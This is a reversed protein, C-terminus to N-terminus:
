DFCKIMVHLLYVHMLFRCKFCRQRQQKEKVLKVQNFLTICKYLIQIVDELQDIHYQDYYEFLFNEVLCIKFNDQAVPCLLFDILINEFKFIKSM